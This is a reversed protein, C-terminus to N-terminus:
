SGGQGEDEQGFPNMDPHLMVERNDPVDPMLELAEQLAAAMAAQQQQRAAVYAQRTQQYRNLDFLGTHAIADRELDEAITELWAMNDAADWHGQRPIFMIGDDDEITNGEALIVGELAYLLKTVREGYQHVSIEGTLFTSQINELIVDVHVVKTGPMVLDPVTLASIM